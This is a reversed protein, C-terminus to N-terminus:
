GTVGFAEGFYDREHLLYSIAKLLSHAVELQQEELNEKLQNKHANYKDWRKQKQAADKPTHSTEIALDNYDHDLQELKEKYNKTINQFQTEILTFRTKIDDDKCKSIHPLLPIHAMKTANVFLEVQNPLVIEVIEGQVFRKVLGGRTMEKSGEKMARNFANLSIEKISLEQGGRWTETDEYEPETQEPKQNM